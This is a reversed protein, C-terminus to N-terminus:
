NKNLPPSYAAILRNQIAARNATLMVCVHTLGRRTAEGWKEHGWGLPRDKFSQTEGIYLITHNGSSGRMTFVYVGPVANFDTGKPYVEFVYKNGYTDILTLDEIKAM